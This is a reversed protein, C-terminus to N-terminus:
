GGIHIVRQGCATFLTAAEKTPRVSSTFAAETPIFSYEFETDRSGEKALNVYSERISGTM